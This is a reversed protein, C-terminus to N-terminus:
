KLDKEILMMKAYRSFVGYADIAAAALGPVGDLYVRKVIYTHFFRYFPKFFLLFLTVKKGKDASMKAQFWAYKDKKSIFHFLGKYTYHVMYNKLVGPKSKLVLKEHVENEFIVNNNKILRIVKDTYHFLFRDMFFHPFWIKYADFENSEISNLIETQLKDTVREDADLFLIWNGTVFEIAYNRQNCYNDFKRFVLKAGLESVIEPTKDNSYSDLVIIEDAFSVSKIAEAIYFEENYTLIIVSLKKM